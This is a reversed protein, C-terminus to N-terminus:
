NNFPRAESWPTSASRIKKRDWYWIVVQYPRAIYHLPAVLLHVLRTFPFILIITYAGIIHLKIALPMAVIATIQPNLMVISWLYPALDSAFWSSGWRYALAIWCGLAVQVLLLLLIAIDMKTTVIRIRSNVFRRIFLGSLALLLSLGFTFAIGELVILRFPNSNWMLTAQPFLFTVLHGLLVILIGVHFPVTGWFAKKGELFQTSLSSYKFGTKKYRYIVGVIFTMLAVYPMAVFFFNNLADM